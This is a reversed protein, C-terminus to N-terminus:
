SNLADPLVVLEGMRLVALLAIAREDVLLCALLV